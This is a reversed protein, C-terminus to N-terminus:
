RTAALTVTSRVAEWVADRRRGGITHGRARIGDLLRDRSLRDGLEILVEHAVPLVDDIDPETAASGPGLYRRGPRAYAVSPSRDSDDVSRNTDTQPQSLPEPELRPVSEATTPSLDDTAVPEAAKLRSRGSLISHLRNGRQIPSDTHPPRVQGSPTATIPSPSTTRALEAHDLRRTVFRREKRGFTRKARRWARRADHDALALSWAETADTLGLRLAASAARGTTVPFRLWRACGFRPRRPPLRDAHRQRHAQRERLEWGAVSAVSLLAFVAGTVGPKTWDPSGHRYNVAAAAAVVAWMGARYLATSDDASRAKHALGALSLGLSELSSAVMGCLLVPLGAARMADFQFWWASTTAALIPAAILLEGTTLCFGRAMQVARGARQLRRERRRRTCRAREQRRHKKRALRRENQQEKLKHRRETLDLEAAREAIRLEARDRQRGARTGVTVTTSDPLVRSDIMTM